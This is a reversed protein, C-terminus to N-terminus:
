QGGYMKRLNIANVVVKKKLEAYNVQLFRENLPSKGREGIVRKVPTLLYVDELAFVLEVDNFNFKKSLLKAAKELIESNSLGTPDFDLIEYHGTVRWCFVCEIM